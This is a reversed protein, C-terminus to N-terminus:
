AARAQQYAAQERLRKVKYRLYALEDEVSIAVGIGESM